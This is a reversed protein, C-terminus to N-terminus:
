RRRLLGNREATDRLRACQAPDLRTNEPATEDRMLNGPADAHEGSDMLVHALEHALAIGPDRTARTIWVTDALEPRARSNGRGIAEADFAPRQRTDAVFYVAPRPLPVARALARSRATAFDRFPPPAAIRVLEIRGPAVGCQALIDAAERAAAAAAEGTWGSDELVALTLALDHTASAPAAPSALAARSIVEIAPQACAPTAVLLLPLLLPRLHSIM